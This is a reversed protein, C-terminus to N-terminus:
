DKATESLKQETSHAPETFLLAKFNNVNSPHDDRM